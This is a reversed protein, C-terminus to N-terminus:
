LVRLSCSSLRRRHVCCLCRATARVVGGASGAARLRVAVRCAGSSGYKAAPEAVLLNSGLNSTFGATRVLSRPARDRKSEGSLGAVCAAQPPGSESCEAAGGATTRAPPPIVARLLSSSSVSPRSGFSWWSHALGIMLVCAGLLGGALLLISAGGVAPRLPGLAGGGFFSCFLFFISDHRGSASYRPGLGVYLTLYLSSRM